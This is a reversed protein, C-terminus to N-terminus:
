TILVASLPSLKLTNLFYLINDEEAFITIEHLCHQFNYLIIFVCLTTDTMQYVVIELAWKLLIIKYLALRCLEWVTQRM